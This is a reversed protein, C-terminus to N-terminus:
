DHAVKFEKRDPEGQEPLSESKEALMVADRQEVEEKAWPPGPLLNLCCVGGEIL